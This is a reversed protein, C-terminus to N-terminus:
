LYPGNDKGQGMIRGRVRRNHWRITFSTTGFLTAWIGLIIGVQVFWPFYVIPVLHTRTLLSDSVLSESRLVKIISLVACLSFLFLAVTSLSTRAWLVTNSYRRIAHATGVVLGCAVLVDIVIYVSSLIVLFEANGRWNTTFKADIGLRWRCTVPWGYCYVVYPGDGNLSCFGGRETVNAYIISYLVSGAIVFILAFRFGKGLRSHHANVDLALTEREIPETM